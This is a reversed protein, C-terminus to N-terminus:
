RSSSALGPSVTLKSTKSSTPTCDGFPRTASCVFLPRFDFGMASVDTPNHFVVPAGDVSLTGADPQTVGGLVKVLTSKGAGNEGLLARVEGPRIALTGDRLAHVAGYSKQAHDLALLPTTPSDSM